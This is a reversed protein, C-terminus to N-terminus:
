DDENLRIFSAVAVAATEVRLVLEGLSVPVCGAQKALEVEEPSFDGEPGIFIIVSKPSGTSLAGKLSKRRGELHPILKLDFDRAILLAGRLDKAPEIAPVDKRQSQKASNLAIKEWRAKRMERKKNDLRVIVRETEMPIIKNVGLQTLKDIIDDIKSKKPIACAVALYIKKSSAAALDVDKVKAVVIDPMIKEIECGYQRGKDDCVVIAEKVKLRLVNKIHHVQEKDTINVMGSSVSGSDVFFRHM